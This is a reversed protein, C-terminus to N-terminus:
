PRVSERMNVAITKDGPAPLQGGKWLKLHGFCGRRPGPPIGFSMAQGAYPGDTEIIVHSDKVLSACALLAAEDPVELLIAITSSPAPGTEGAAHLVM